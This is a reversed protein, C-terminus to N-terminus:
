RDGEEFAAALSFSRLFAMGTYEPWASVYQDACARASDFRGALQYTICLDPLFARRWPEENYAREFEPVAEDYRGANRCTLALAYRAETWYPSRATVARLAAIAEDYRDHLALAWGLGRLHSPDAPARAVARQYFSLADDADGLMGHLYGLHDLLEPTERGVDLVRTEIELAQRYDGLEHALLRALPLAYAPDGPELDYAARAMRYEEGLDGRDAYVVAAWRYAEANRPNADIARLFAALAQEDEARKQHIVGATVSAEDIQDGKAIAEDATALALRGQGEDDIRLYRHLHALLCAPRRDSPLRYLRGTEGLVRIFTMPRREPAWDRLAPKLMRIAQPYDGARAYAVVAMLLADIDDPAVALARDISQLADTPENRDLALEALTLLSASARPERALTESALARARDADGQLLALQDDLPRDLNSLAERLNERYAAAAGAYDGMAYRVLAVIGQRSLPRLRPSLSVVYRYLLLGCVGLALLM